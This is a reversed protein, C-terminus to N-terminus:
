FKYIYANRTTQMPKLGGFNFVYSVAMAGPKLEAKLKTAMKHMWNTHLYLFVVDASGVNARWMSGLHLKAQSRFRRLRWKSVLWLVPNIEYGEVQAGRKAAALLVKGDGSGLDVFYAGKGVRAMELLEDIDQQFAPVYPAGFFVAYLFGSVVVLGLLLLWGM